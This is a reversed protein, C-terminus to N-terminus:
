KLDNSVDYDSLPLKSADRRAVQTARSLGEILAQAIADSQKDVIQNVSSRLRSALRVVGRSRVNPGTYAGSFGVNGQNWQVQRFV